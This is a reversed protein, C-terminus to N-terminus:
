VSVVSFPYLLASIHFPAWKPTTAESSRSPCSFCVFQGLLFSLNSHSLLYFLIQTIKLQLLSVCWQSLFLSWQNKSLTHARRGLQITPSPWATCSSAQASVASHLYICLLQVLNCAVRYEKCATVRLEKGTKELVAGFMSPQCARQSFGYWGCGTNCQLLLWVKISM